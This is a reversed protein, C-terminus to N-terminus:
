LQKPDDVIVNGGWCDVAANFETNAKAAILFAHRGGSCYGIVGIKGNHNPQARLLAAAGLADGIVQEDAVGGAARVRAGVDDPNGPGERFYLHPAIGLYGHHALKRPVEKIWEDWGPMHHIIVVGPFPGPGLPRAYYAEGLDGNHGRFTVTEALMAQYPFNMPDECPQPHRDITRRDVRLTDHARTLM